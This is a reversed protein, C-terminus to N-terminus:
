ALHHSDVNSASGVTRIHGATFGPIRNDLGSLINKKIESLAKRHASDFGFILLRPIVDVETVRSPPPRRLRLRARVGLVSSYAELIERQHERAWDHYQILQACVVPATRSRLEANEFLKAETFTLANQNNVAVVDVRGASGVTDDDTDTDVQSDFAAEVDVVCGCSTAIRTAGAREDGTLRRAAAKIAALHNVYQAADSVTVAEVVPRVPALLDAYQDNSSTPKPFVLFKRNVRLQLRGSNWAIRAISAGGAYANVTNNRVAVFVDADQVLTSWWSERDDYLTNLEDIVAAELQRTFAMRTDLLENLGCGARISRRM